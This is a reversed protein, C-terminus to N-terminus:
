DDRYGDSCIKKGREITTGLKNREAKEWDTEKRRSDCSDM